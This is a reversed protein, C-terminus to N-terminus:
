VRDSAPMGRAELCRTSRFQAVGKGISRVGYDVGVLWLPIHPRPNGPIPCFTSHVLPPQGQLRDTRDALVWEVNSPKTFPAGHVDAEDSSSMGSTFEGSACCPVKERAIRFAIAALDVM